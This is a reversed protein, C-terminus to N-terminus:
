QGAVIGAPIARENGEVFPLPESNTLARHDRLLRAMDVMRVVMRRVSDLGESDALVDRPGGANVMAPFGSGVLIMRNLMLNMALQAYVQGHNYRRGTVIIGGVKNTLPRQFRLYGVGAREIFIQMLHAMGFGHVPVAYIIGEAELLAPLVREMDDHLACPEKRNNCDGCPGCPGIRHDRLALTRLEAGREAAVTAAFDLVQDTSGGARESGSIALLRIPGDSPTPTM